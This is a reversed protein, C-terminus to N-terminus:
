NQHTPDVGEYGGGPTSIVTLHKNRWALELSGSTELGRGKENPLGGVTRGKRSRGPGEDESSRPNRTSNEARSPGVPAQLSLGPAKHINSRDTPPGALTARRDEHSESLAPWTSTEGLLHGPILTAPM